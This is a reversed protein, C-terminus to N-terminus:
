DLEMDRVDIKGTVAEYILAQRYEKLKEIQSKVNTVLKEIKSTEEDLFKAINQQETLPPLLVTFKKIDAQFLHPVGMGDKIQNIVDQIYTSKLYYYYYVSNIKNTPRLVAISSNVTSQIPLDRVVNVIGLTSGDKALLVDGIELMIEPSELYREETIYNINEFDIERYKLNPTSLFGYGEEVYEEAKLGKWGLRAKVRSIFDIRTKQWHEPIEGIWEVGSDKMKMNPNLGKTVAETIISQRQKELLKILKEKQSILAKIEKEKRYLFDGIKKQEDYTPICIKLSKLLGLSIGDRLGDGVLGRIFKYNYKLFYYLYLYHLNIENTIFAVLSQNCTTEVKLIAVTGKTKGQGNLAMMVSNTPLLTANSNRLGLETIKNKTEYVFENNVEGSSMWNINGDEWYEPKDKSPTGGAQLGAFYKIKAIYWNQPIHGINVLKSDVLPNCKSM